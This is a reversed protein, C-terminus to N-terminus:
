KKSLKDIADKVSVEKNNLKEILGLRTANFTSSSLRKALYQLQKESGISKDLLALVLLDIGRGSNSDEDGKSGDPDNKWVHTGIGLWSGIKTLADTVAGKYADGLDANDNGGYTEKYSGDAFTVRVKAVVMIKEYANGNKYTGQQREIQEISADLSWGMEGFAENLRDTVAISNISSMGTKTPHAKVAWAPLPRALIAKQLAKEIEIM